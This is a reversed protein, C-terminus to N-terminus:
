HSSQLEPSYAGNVIIPSLFSCLIPSGTMQLMNVVANLSAPKWVRQLGECNLIHTSRELYYSRMVRRATDFFVCYKTGQHHKLHSVKSCTALALKRPSPFFAQHKKIYHHSAAVPHYLIKQMKDTKNEKIFSQM